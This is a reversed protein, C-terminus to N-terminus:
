RELLRAAAPCRRAKPFPLRWRMAKALNNVLLALLALAVWGMQVQGITQLASRWDVTRALMVLALAAIGLGIALGAYRRGPHRATSM